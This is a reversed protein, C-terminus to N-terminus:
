ANMTHSTGPRSLSPRHSMRMEESIDDKDVEVKKEVEKKKGIM